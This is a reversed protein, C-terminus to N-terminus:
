RKVKRLDDLKNQALRIVRCMEGYGLGRSRLWIILEQAIREEKTM